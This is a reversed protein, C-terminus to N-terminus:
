KLSPTVFPSIALSQLVSGYLVIHDHSEIFGPVVTKSELDIYVYSKDAAKKM